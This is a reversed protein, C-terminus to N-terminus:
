AATNIKKRATRRFSARREEETMGGWIGNDERRALAAAGCEARIACQECITKALSATVHDTRDPFFLEPDEGICNAETIRSWFAREPDSVVSGIPISKRATNNM